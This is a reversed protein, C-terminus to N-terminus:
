GDTKGGKSKNKPFLKMNCIPCRLNKSYKLNSVVYCNPCLFKTKNM